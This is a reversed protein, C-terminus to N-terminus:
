KTVNLFPLPSGAGMYTPLKGDWRNIAQGDKTCGGNRGGITTPEWQGLSNAHPLKVVRRTQTKRGDLIARVMPASFALPREKM